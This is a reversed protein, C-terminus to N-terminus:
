RGSQEQRSSHRQLVLKLALDRGVGVHAHAGPLGEGPSSVLAQELHVLVHVGQLLLGYLLQHHGGCLHLVRLMLVLLASCSHAAGAAAAATTVTQSLQSAANEAPRPAEGARKCSPLGVSLMATQPLAAHDPRCPCEGRQCVRQLLLHMPVPRQKTDWCCNPKPQTHMKYAAAAPMHQLGCSGRAAALCSSNHQM